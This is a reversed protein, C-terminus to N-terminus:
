RRCRPCRHIASRRTVAIAKVRGARIHGLATTLDLFTFSYLGGILDNVSQPSSKYAVGTATAGIRALFASGTVQSVAAGWGYSAKGPNAKLWAILEALTNAPFDKNVILVYYAQILGGVPEFDKVPDYPLKKFLSPNLSQTTGSTVFLTYGDPPSKAAMEAAIFGSAGARHEIVVPQKLISAMEDGAIRAVVDTGSGPGFPLIFKIPKVPYAGQATAWGAFLCAALLVMARAAHMTARM